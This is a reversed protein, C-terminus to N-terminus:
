SSEKWNLTDYEAMTHVCMRFDLNKSDLKYRMTQHEPINCPHVIKPVLCYLPCVIFSITQGNYQGTQLVTWEMLGFDNLTRQEWHTQLLLM